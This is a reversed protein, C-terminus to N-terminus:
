VNSGHLDVGNLGAEDFEDAAWYNVFVSNEDPQATEGRGVDSLKRDGEVM